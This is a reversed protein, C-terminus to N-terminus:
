ARIPVINSESDGENDVDNDRAKGAGKGRTESYSAWFTAAEENLWHRESLADMLKDVPGVYSLHHRLGEGVRKDAVIERVQERTLGERVLKMADTSTVWPGRRKEPTPAPTIGMEALWKRVLDSGTYVTKTERKNGANAAGIRTFSLDALEPYAVLVDYPLQGNTAVYLLARILTNRATDLEREVSQQAEQAARAVEDRMGSVLRTAEDRVAQLEGAHQATLEDIRNRTVKALADRLNDRHRDEKEQMEEERRILWGNLWTRKRPMPRTAHAYAELLAPIDDEAIELAAIAQAAKGGLTEKVPTLLAPMGPEIKQRVIQAQLATWTAILVRGLVLVLFVWTRPDILPENSIFAQPNSDATYIVIGLTLAEVAFVFAVYVVHMVAMSDQRNRLLPWIRLFSKLATIDAAWVTFLLLTLLMVSIVKLALPQDGLVYQVEMRGAVLLMAASQVIIILYAIWSSHGESEKLREPKKGFLWTTLKGWAGAM